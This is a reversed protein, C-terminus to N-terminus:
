MGSVYLLYALLHPMDQQKIQLDLGEPMLSKATAQVGDIQNRLITDEANEGRKLTVSTGSESALLGSFTRGQKTEVIYNVYRPDVERSPDLIAILLYEANKGRIAGLLEPGVQYGMGDFKHCTACNKKFL